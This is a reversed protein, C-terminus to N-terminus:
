KHGAARQGIDHFTQDFRHRPKGRPTAPYRGLASKDRRDATPTRCGAVPPFARRDEISSRTLFRSLTTAMGHFRLMVVVWVPREPSLADDM